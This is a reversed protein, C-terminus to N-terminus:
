EKELVVREYVKAAEGADGLLSKYALEYKSLISNEEYVGWIKTGSGLYDSLKSPLYPNISKKNITSADNVILCDFKTTLNLFELYHVYPQIIINDKIDYEGLMENLSKIDSTFIHLIINQKIDVKVKELGKFLDDLKRTDYFSGFYAFNVKSKDINYASKVFSYYEKPMTPQPSIKAKSIIHKKIDEIPFYGLMYELQNKNTFILEDAFVYPLYECWLFLNDDEMTSLGLDSINKNADNIFNINDIKAQRREGHIDLLLPDSFEAIWKVKPNNMKFQYALFHSGPWLARSYIESYKDKNLNSIGTNVFEEIAKWNSFSSYSAIEIRKDVLDEFLINLRNDRSRVRDMKNYIVDVCDNMTRIRKAMVNGSTDLYPPFCYSIVLKEALNRNIISYPIYSLDYKKIENFVNDRKDRNVELYRNLFGFQAKIKQKILMVKDQKKTRRLMGDLKQIVNLRQIVYFDFSIEQRSVSRETLLRYYIVQRCIPLVKFHFNSKLYLESFFVVDEGSKLDTDFRLKKLYDTPVLKCASITSVMSLTTLNAKKGSKEIQIIQNNIPNQVEIEGFSNVDVIQSVVITDQSANEYVESLYNSSLYDDIDLFLSYQRTAKEIGVNRAASAGQIDSYYIFINDMKKDFIYKKIISESSDREGNIIIIIEFLDKELTQNYLSLLCNNIYQEGKYLPIIVSVGRINNQTYNIKLKEIDQLRQLLKQKIM